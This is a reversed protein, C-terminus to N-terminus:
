QEFCITNKGNLAFLGSRCAICQDEATGNCSECTLHCPACNYDQTEYTYLPCAAYCKNEHMVLHHECSTCKDPRDQCSACNAECPVCTSNETDVHFIFFSYSFKNSLNNSYITTIPFFFIEPFSTSKGEDWDILM